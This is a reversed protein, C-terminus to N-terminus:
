AAIFLGTGHIGSTPAKKWCEVHPFQLYLGKLNSPFLFPGKAQFHTEKM